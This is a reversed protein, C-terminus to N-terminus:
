ASTSRQLIERLAEVEVQHPTACFRCIVEAPEGTAIMEQLTEPGLTALAGAVRDADCGCRFCVRRWELLRMPHGVLDSLRQGHDVAGPLSELVWGQEIAQRSRDLEGAPAGPATQVLV